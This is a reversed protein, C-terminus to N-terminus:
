SMVESMPADTKLLQIPVFTESTDTIILFALYVLGKKVMSLTMEDIFTEKIIQIAHERSKARRSVEIVWNEGDIVYHSEVPDCEEAPVLLIAKYQFQTTM